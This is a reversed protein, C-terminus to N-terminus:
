LIAAVYRNQLSHMAILFPYIEHVATWIMFGHLKMKTLNSNKVSFHM